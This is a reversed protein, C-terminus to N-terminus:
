ELWDAVMKKQPSNTEVEQMMPLIWGIVILGNSKSDKQIFTPITIQHPRTEKLFNYIDSQLSGEIISQEM